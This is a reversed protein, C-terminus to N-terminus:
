FDLVQHLENNLRPFSRNPAFTCHLPVVILKMHHGVEELEVVVFVRVRQLTLRHRECNQNISRDDDWGSGTCLFGRRHFGLGTFHPRRAMNTSCTSHSGVQRRCPCHSCRLIGAARNSIVGGVDGNTCEVSLM